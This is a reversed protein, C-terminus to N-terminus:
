LSKICHLGQTEAPVARGVTDHSLLRAQGFIVPLIGTGGFIVPVAPAGGSHTGM